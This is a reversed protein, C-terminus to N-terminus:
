QGEGSTIHLAGTGSSLLAAVHTAGEPPYFLEVTGPALALDAASATVTGDGFAVFGRLPADVPQADLFLRVSRRQVSSFSGPIAARATSTTVPLSASAGPRFVQM